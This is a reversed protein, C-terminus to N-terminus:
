VRDQNGFRSRFAQRFRRAFEEDQLRVSSSEQSTANVQPQLRLLGAFLAVPLYGSAGFYPASRTPARGRSAPNGCVTRARRRAAFGGRIPFSSPGTCIPLRDEQLGMSVPEDAARFSTKRSPLCISAAAIRRRECDNVQRWYLPERSDGSRSQLPHRSLQLIACSKSVIRLVSPCSECFM